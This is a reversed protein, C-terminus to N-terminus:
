EKLMLEPLEKISKKVIGEIIAVEDADHCAISPLFLIPRSPNVKIPGLSLSIGSKQYYFGRKEGPEAPLIYVGKVLFDGWCRRGYSVRIKDGGAHFVYRADALWIKDIVGRAELPKTTVLFHYGDKKNFIYSGGANFYTKIPEKNYSLAGICWLIYGALIVGGFLCFCMIFFM